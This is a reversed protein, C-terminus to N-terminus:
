AHGQRRQGRVELGATIEEALHGEARRHEGDRSGEGLSQRARRLLGHPREVRILEREIGVVVEDDHVVAHRGRDALDGPEAAADEVLM